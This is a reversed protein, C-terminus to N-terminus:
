ADALLPESKRWNAVRFDHAGPEGIRGPLRLAWRNVQYRIANRYAPHDVVDGVLQGNLYVSRGDRLSDLHDQGTKTM